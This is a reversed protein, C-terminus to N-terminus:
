GSPWREMNLSGAFTIIDPNQPLTLRFFPSFPGQLPRNAGQFLREAVKRVTQKLLARKYRQNMSM